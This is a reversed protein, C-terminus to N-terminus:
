NFLATYNLPYFHLGTSRQLTFHVAAWGRKILDRLSSSFDKYTKETDTSINADTPLNPTERIRSKKESIKFATELDSQNSCFTVLTACLFPGLLPGYRLTNEMDPIRHYLSLAMPLIAYMAINFNSQDVRPQQLILGNM